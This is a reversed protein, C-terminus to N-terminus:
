RRRVEDVLAAILRSHEDAEPHWQVGLAFRRGGAEMAEPLEDGTAWGSVAFGEGLRDVAQHHHSRVATASGGAARAALSGDGLRVEHDSWAGPSHRHDEHGVVDPVHAILTGGAAANMVQMGRCIGLLPLDRELARRTLATEFADRERDEGVDGGGAPVPGDIRNLVEGPDDATVPDPALLLALAGARQVARVYARPLLVTDHDWPGYRARTHSVCLGIVPRSAM